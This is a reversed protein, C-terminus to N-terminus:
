SICATEGVFVWAFRSCPDRNQTPKLYLRTTKLQIFLLKSWLRVIIAVFFPLPFIWPFKFPPFGDKIRGTACFGPRRLRTTSTELDCVRYSEEPRTMLEDILGSGIRFVVFVASLCGPCWRSEFRNKCLTDWIWGLRLSLCSHPLSSSFQFNSLLCSVRVSDLSLM